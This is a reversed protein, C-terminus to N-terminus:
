ITHSMDRKGKLEGEDHENVALSELAGLLVLTRITPQFLISTNRISRADCSKSRDHKGMGSHDIFKEEGECSDGTNNGSSANASNIAPLSSEYSPIAINTAMVSGFIVGM